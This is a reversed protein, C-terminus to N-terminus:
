LCISQCIKNIANIIWNFSKPLLFLKTSALQQPHQPQQWHQQQGCGGIIIWGGGASWLTQWTGQQQQRGHQQRQQQQLNNILKKKKYNFYIFFFKKKPPHLPRLFRSAVYLYLSKLFRRSTECNILQWNVFDFWITSCFGTLSTSKGNNVLKSEDLIVVVVKIGFWDVIINLALLDLLFESFSICFKLFKLLFM